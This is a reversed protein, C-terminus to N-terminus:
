LKKKYDKPAYLQQKPEYDFDSVQKKKRFM